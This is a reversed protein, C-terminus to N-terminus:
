CSQCTALIKHWHQDAAATSDWVRKSTGHTAPAETARSFVNNSLLRCKQLIANSPEISNIFETVSLPSASACQHRHVFVSQGAHVISENQARRLHMKTEGFLTNFTSVFNFLKDWLFKMFWQPDNRERKPTPHLERDAGESHIVQRFTTRGVHHQHTHWRHGRSLQGSDREEGHLIGKM